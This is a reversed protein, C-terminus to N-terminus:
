GGIVELLDGRLVLDVRMSETGVELGAVYAPRAAIGGDPDTLILVQGPKLERTAGPGFRGPDLNYSVSIGPQRTRIYTDAILAATAADGVMPCDLAVDVGRLAAYSQAATLYGSTSPSRTVLGEADSSGARYAYRVQLSILRQDPIGLDSVRAGTVLHEGSAGVEAWPHIAPEVGRLGHVISCPLVSLIQRALEAPRVQRDVYGALVYRDLLPAVARWAPLDARLQSVELLMAVVQGAGGPLAEGETWSTYMDDDSTPLVGSFDSGSTDVDPLKVYAYVGAGDTGYFIEYLGADDSGHGDLTLGDPSGWKRAWLRVHTAACRHRAVLVHWHGAILDESILYAPAGYRTTTGPAGYVIPGWVEKQRAWVVTFVTEPWRRGADIVYADSSAITTGEERDAFFIEAGGREATYRTVSAPGPWLVADDEEIDDGITLTIGKLGVSVSRWPGQLVEVADSVGDGDTTVRWLRGTGTTPGEPGLAWAMADLGTPQLKITASRVPAEASDIAASETWEVEVPDLGSASGWRWALRWTFRTM